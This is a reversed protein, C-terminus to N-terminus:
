GIRLGGSGPGPKRALDGVLERVVGALFLFLPAGFGGLIGGLGFITTARDPARTWADLTHAEVMILVALGRLWDIYGRRM